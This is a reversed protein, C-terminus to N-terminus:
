TKIKTRLEPKIGNEKGPGMESRLRLNEKLVKGLNIGLRFGSLLEMILNWELNGDFTM